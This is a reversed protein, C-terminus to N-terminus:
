VENETQAGRLVACRSQFMNEYEEEKERENIFSDTLLPKAQRLICHFSPFRAGSKEAFSKM